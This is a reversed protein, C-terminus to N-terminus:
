VCLVCMCTEEGGLNLTITATSEGFDNKALVKYEGGDQLNVQAIELGIQQADGSGEHMTTYRGGSTIVKDDLSWTINPNPDGALKCEIVIKDGAQRIQPKDLFKPGTGKM